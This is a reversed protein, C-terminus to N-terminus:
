SKVLTMAPPKELKAKLERLEQQLRLIVGRLMKNEDELQLAWARLDALVDTASM